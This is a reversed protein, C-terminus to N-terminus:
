PYRHIKAEIWCAQDGTSTPGADVQLIVSASQGSYPTLDVDLVEIGEGYTHPESIIWKGGDESLILMVRYTAAGQEAGQLMGLVAQFHDGSEIVYDPTSIAVYEGRVVGDKVKRPHTELCLGQIAGGTELSGSAWRAYGQADEPSGPWPLSTMPPGAFWEAADAKEVFDFVVDPKVVAVTTELYNNVEDSEAIIRTTDVEAAALLAAYSSNYATTTCSLERSQGAKLGDGVIWQCTSSQATKVHWWRVVFGGSDADGENKVQVTTTVPLHAVPVTPVFTVSIVALDAEGSGCTAAVSTTLHAIEDDDADRSTLTVVSVGAPPNDWVFSNTNAGLSVSLNPGEIRYASEGKGDTWTLTVRKCDPTVAGLFDQPATFAEVTPSPSPSVQGPVVIQAYFIGGFRKGDPTQLQWDSRHTGPETPAKLPVSLELEQDPETPPVTVSSPGDLGPGSVHILTTGTEWVCTGSNRIRWTKTFGAGPQITTDDPITVDAVFAARLTCADEEAEATPSATPTPLIDGIAPTASASPSPLISSESTSTAETDESGSFGPFNCAMVVLLGALSLAWLGPQKTRKM